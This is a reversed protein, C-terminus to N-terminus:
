QYDHEPEFIQGRVPDGNEYSLTKFGWLWFLLDWVNVVIFIALFKKGLAGNFESMAGLSLYTLIAYIECGVMVLLCFVWSGVLVKKTKITPGSCTVLNVIFSLVSIVAQAIGIILMPLKLKGSWIYGLMIPVWALNGPSNTYRQAWGLPAILVLFSIIVFIAATLSSFESFARDAACLNANTDSKLIFYQAILAGCMLLDLVYLFFCFCRPFKHSCRIVVVAILNFLVLAYAIYSAIDLFLHGCIGEYEYWRVAWYALAVQGGLQVMRLFVNFFKSNPENIDVEM